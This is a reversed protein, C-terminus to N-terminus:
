GRPLFVASSEMDPVPVVPHGESLLDWAMQLADLDLCGAIHDTSWITASTVAFYSEFSSLSRIFARASFEETM